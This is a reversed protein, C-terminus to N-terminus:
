DKKILRVTGKILLLAFFMVAPYPQGSLILLIIAAANIVAGACSVGAKLAERESKCLLLEAVGCLAMAIPLALYFVTLWGQWQYLPVCYYVGGTEAKYLPLLLSLIASINFIGDVCFAFRAISERKEREAIMIVDETCLLEDLTVSCLKSILRLSDMSPAGRGTEWKSVATRSVFLRQAFQEQTLGLGRRLNQIKESLEM